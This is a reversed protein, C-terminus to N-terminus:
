DLKCTLLAAKHTGHNVLTYIPETEDTEEWVIQGNGDLVDTMEEIFVEEEHEPILRTSRTQSHVKYINRTSLTYKAKEEDDLLEYEDPTKEHFYKEIIDEGPQASVEVDGRYFRLVDSLERTQVECIYMPKTEVTTHRSNYVEYESLEVERVINKVYYKVNSLEKKPIKVSVQLPETFDCEQTVKGVTYNRIIDDSQKQAYGPAINSTTVLDGSELSGGVDSVWIRTDGNTDVLTDYDNTDTKQDSVVGYWAKDMAVNSLSVIPTVNTKHTNMKASVVLGTINQDWTNSVTTKSRPLETVIEQIGKILYPIFQIYKIGSPKDGWVSYDPDQTPDDSPAPTLTDIDGAIDAVTVLHRMEPASYYVEQAMLGSEHIWEEDHDPDPILKPKKLYEQPRLKFLSKVAGTIFKEDYKLRDDSYPNGRVIQGANTMHLYESGTTDAVSGRRMYFSNHAQNTIGAQFGIAVSFNGQNDRGADYGIAISFIGQDYRGCYPGIATSTGGQSNQAAYHGIAVSYEGQATLGAEMGMAISSYGQSNVGAKGIAICYANQVNLGATHGIAIAETQQNMQAARHGIAISLNGQDNQAANAGLSIGYSGPVNEGAQYGL